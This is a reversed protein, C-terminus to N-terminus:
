ALVLAIAGLMAVAGALRALLVRRGAHSETNTFWHGVWWVLLVSFLGRVSYVVNVATAHGWVALTLSIGFHTVGNCVAGLGVWRWAGAQIATLGGRSFALLVFSFLGVLLFMPPLFQGPGWVPAWKQILVDSLSFLVACVGAMAVTPATRSAQRRGGGFNLLAVGLTSLAAGAWWAAPVDGVRLLSSFLAVLVVKVGLVPAVVSVDGRTIALFMCVQACLFVLAATAPQWYATWPLDAMGYGFWVPLFFLAATWNACFATRWVGVGCDGARKMALMSVVYLLACTLPILLFGPAAM